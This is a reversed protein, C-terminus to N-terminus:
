CGHLFERESEQFQVPVGGVDDMGVEVDGEDGGREACCTGTRLCCGTGGRRELDADGGVVLM